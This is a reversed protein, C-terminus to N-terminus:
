SSTRRRGFPIVSDDYTLDEILKGVKAQRLNENMKSLVDMIAETDAKRQQRRREERYADLQDQQAAREIDLRIRTLNGGLLVLALVVVAFFAVHLSLAVGMGTRHRSTYAHIAFGTGDILALWCAGKTACAMWRPPKANARQELLEVIRKTHRAAIIEGTTELDNM